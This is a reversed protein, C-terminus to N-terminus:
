IESDKVRYILEKALIGMLFGSIMGAAILLPLYSVIAISNLSVAAVIIQGINHFVGGATSVAIVSFCNFKKLVYMVTFAIIGGALSYLMMSLSTFLFGMLVIRIILVVFADKFSYKYLCFLVCVNAFGLKFGPIAPIIVLLSELYSFIMSLAILIGLICIRKIKVAEEQFRDQYPIM